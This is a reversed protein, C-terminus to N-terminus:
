LRTSPATVKEASMDLGGCQFGGNEAFFIGEFRPTKEILCTGGAIASRGKHTLNSSLLLGAWFISGPYL